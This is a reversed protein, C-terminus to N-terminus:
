RLRYRLQRGGGVTHPPRGRPLGQRQVTARLRPKHEDVVFRGEVTAKKSGMRVRSADARDGKLLRLSEVVMTKGAGTEGTVVTLGPGPEAGASTLVGLNYIALESLM